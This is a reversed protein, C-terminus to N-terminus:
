LERNDGGKRKKLFADRELIMTMIMRM